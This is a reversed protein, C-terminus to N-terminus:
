RGNQSIAKRKTLATRLKPTYGNQGPVNVSEFAAHRAQTTQMVGQSPCFMIALCWRQTCQCGAGGFVTLELLACAVTGFIALMWVRSRRDRASDDEDDNDEDDVRPLSPDLLGSRSALALRSAARSFVEISMM